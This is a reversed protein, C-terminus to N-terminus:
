RFIAAGGPALGGDQRAPILGAPPKLTMVMRMVKGGVLVPIPAQIMKGDKGGCAEILLVPVRKSGKPNQISAIAPRFQAHDKETETLGGL